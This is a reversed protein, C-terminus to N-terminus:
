ASILTCLCGELLFAPMLNMNYYALILKCRWDTEIPELLIMRDKGKKQMKFGLNTIHRQAIGLMPPVTMYTKVSPKSQLYDYLMGSKSLLDSMLMKSDKEQLLFASLLSNLTIPTQMHQKKMLHHNLRSATSECEIPGALQTLQGRDTLYDSVNIPELYKVYVDGIADNNM